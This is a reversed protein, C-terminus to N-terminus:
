QVEEMVGAKLWKGILRCIQGDNVRQKIMEQLRNHPIADFYVSVDADVIWKINKGICQERLEQLAQHASHGTRFGYSFGYFDQEYIAELMMVVARQVIKDEFTPKGIPRKRGDEKELWVREVPPAKYSGAKLRESLSRLNGELNEAYEGATVGDVGSAGRKNTQRYAERLWNEELHHALTTFVMEPYEVAQM